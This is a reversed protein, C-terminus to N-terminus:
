SYSLLIKLVQSKNLYKIGNYIAYQVQFKNKLILPDWQLLVESDQLIIKPPNPKDLPKLLDLILDVETKVDSCVNSNNFIAKLAKDLNKFKRLKICGNPLSAIVRL